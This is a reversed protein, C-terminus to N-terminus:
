AMKRARAAGILGLLGLGALVISAPEPVAPLLEVGRFASTGPATALVTPTAAAALAATGPDTISVLQTSTTAFLVENNNSDVKGALGRVATTTTGNNFITYALSWVGGSQTWKQIGGGNAASGDDAVYLTNADKFVYDYSSHSGTTPFGNLLTTAQAAATTLGTGVTAVGLTTGSASSVYLQGNAINMVRDNAPTGSVQTSAATSSLTSARVGGSSTAAWVNTGDSVVSRINGTTTADNLLTSTDFTGNLNVRAVVRNNTLGSPAAIGVAANYGGLTLFQGNTSATLFGESTSNGTLTLALQANAATTPLALQQIRSGGSISFEDLYADTANGALATALGDAGVQVVVLDGSGFPAAVAAGTFAWFLVSFAVSSLALATTRRM